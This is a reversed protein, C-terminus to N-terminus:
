CWFPKSVFGQHLLWSMLHYVSLQCWWPSPGWCCYSAPSCFPPCAPHALQPPSALHYLSRATERLLGCKLRGTRWFFTKCPGAPCCLLFSPLAASPTCQGLSVKQLDFSVAALHEWPPAQHSVILAQWSKRQDLLVIASKQKPLFPHIVVSNNCKHVHVHSHYWALCIYWHEWWFLCSGMYILSLRFHRSQIVKLFTPFFGFSWASDTILVPYPADNEPVRGFWVTCKGQKSQDSIFLSWVSYLFYYM